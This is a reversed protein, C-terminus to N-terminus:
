LRAIWFVSRGCSKALGGAKDEASQAQAKKAAVATWAEVVAEWHSQDVSQLTATVMDVQEPALGAATAAQALRAAATSPAATVAEVAAVAAVTAAADAKDLGVSASADLVAAAVKPASPLTSTITTARLAGM